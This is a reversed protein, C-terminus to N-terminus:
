TDLQNFEVLFIYPTLKNEFREELVLHPGSSGVLLIGLYNQLMSYHTYELIALMLSQWKEPYGSGIRIGSQKGHSRKTCIM